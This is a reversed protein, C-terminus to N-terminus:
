AVASFDILTATKTVGGATIKVMVDGDDGAGTGDSMWAIWGGEAPDAPDTSLENGVQAGRLVTETITAAGIVAQNNKTTYSNAGLAISNDADVKQSAHFGASEGVFTNNARTGTLSRGSRAGVFTNYEVTTLAVNEGASYGVAVNFGNGGTVYRLTSDGLGTNGNATVDSTLALMGVATSGVGRTAAALAKQGVATHDAGTVNATLARDGFATCTVGTTMAKLAEFGFAANGGTQVNLLANLGWGVNTNVDGALPTAPGAGGGFMSGYVHGQPSLMRRIYTSADGVWVSGDKRVRYRANGGVRGEYLSSAAVSATDTIDVRLGYFTTSGENWTQKIVLPSNATVTGADFTAKALLSSLSATLEAAEAGPSEINIEDTATLAM